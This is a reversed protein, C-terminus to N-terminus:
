RPAGYHAVVLTTTSSGQYEINSLVCIGTETYPGVLNKEHEPSAIWANVIGASNLLNYSLNEGAASYKYGVSEIWYWPQVGSPSVHSWYNKSVMDQAKMCASRDLLASEILPTLKKSARYENTKKLIGAVSAVEGDGEIADMSSRNSMVVTGDKASGMSLSESSNNTNATITQHSIGYHGYWVAFIVVVFLLVIPTIKRASM